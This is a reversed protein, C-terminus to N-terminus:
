KKAPLRIEEEAFHVAENIATIAQKSLDDAETLSEAGYVSFEWGYGGSAGRTVKIKFTKPASFEQYEM